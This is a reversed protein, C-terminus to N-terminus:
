VVVRLHDEPCLMMLLEAVREVVRVTVQVINDVNTAVRFCDDDIVTFIMVFDFGVSRCGVEFYRIVVPVVRSLTAAVLCCRRGLWLLRRNIRSVLFNM